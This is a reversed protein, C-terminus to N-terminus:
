SFVEVRNQAQFPEPISHESILQTSTCAVQSQPEVLGLVLSTKPTPCTQLRDWYAYREHVDTKSNMQFGNPPWAGDPVPQLGTRRESTRPSIYRGADPPACLKARAAQTAKLLAPVNVKKDGRYWGAWKGQAVNERVALFRQLATQADALHSPDDAARILALYFAYLERMMRAQTLFHVDYFARQRATLEGAPYDAVLADLSAIADALQRKLVKKLDSALDDVALEVGSLRVLNSITV